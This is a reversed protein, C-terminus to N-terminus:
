FLQVWMTTSLAENRESSNNKERLILKAFDNVGDSLYIDLYISFRDFEAPVLSRLDQREQLNNMKFLEVWKNPDINKWVDTPIGEPCSSGPRFVTKVNPLGMEIVHRVSASM